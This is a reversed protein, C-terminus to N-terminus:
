PGAVITTVTGVGSKYKLAGGLTYLLGGGSPPNGTPNGSAPYFVLSNSTQGTITNGFAAFGASSGNAGLLLNGASDFVNTVREPAIANPALRGVDNNACQYSGDTHTGTCGVDFYFNRSGTETQTYLGDGAMGTGAFEGNRSGAPSAGGPSNGWAAVQSGSFVFVGNQTDGALSFGWLDLTMSNEAGSPGGIMTESGIASNINVAYTGVGGTGTCAPSCNGSGIAATGTIQAGHPNLATIGAGVFTEGFVIPSGSQATVTMKGNGSGTVFSATVSTQPFGGATMNFSVPSGAGIRAAGLYGCGSQNGGNGIQVGFVNTDACIIEPNEVGGYSGMVARANFGGLLLASWVSSPNPTFGLQTCPGPGPGGTMIYGPDCQVSQATGFTGTDPSSVADHFTLSTLSNKTFTMTGNAAAIGSDGVCPTASVCGVASTIINGTVATGLNLPAFVPDSTPGSGVFPVGAAAPGASGFGTIGAGQGIPVSHAPTQWQGIAPSAVLMNFLVFLVVELKGFKM